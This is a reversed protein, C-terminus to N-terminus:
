GRGGHGADPAFARAPQRARSRWERAPFCGSVPGPFRAAHHAHVTRYGSHGTAPPFRHPYGFHGTRPSHRWAPRADLQARSPGELFLLRHRPGPTATQKCPLVHPAYGSSGGAPRFGAPLMGFNRRRGAPESTAREGGTEHGGLGCARTLLGMLGEVGFQPVSEGVGKEESKEAKRTFGSAMRSGIDTPM